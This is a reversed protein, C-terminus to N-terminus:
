RLAQAVAALPADSWDGIRGRAWLLGSPPAGHPVLLEIETGYESGACVRRYGDFLRMGLALRFRVPARQRECDAVDARSVFQEWQDREFRNPDSFQQLEIVDPSAGRMSAVRIVRGGNAELTYEIVYGSPMTFGARRYAGRANRQAQELERRQMGSIARSAGREAYPYISVVIESLAIALLALGGIVAVVILGDRNM